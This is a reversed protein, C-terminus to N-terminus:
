NGNYKGERINHMLRNMAINGTEDSWWWLREKFERLRQNSLGAIVKNFYRNYLTEFFAVNGSAAAHNFMATGQERVFRDMDFGYAGGEFNSFINYKAFVCTLLVLKDKDTEPRSSLLLDLAERRDHIVALAALTNITGIDLGDLSAALAERNDDMMYRYPSTYINIYVKDNDLPLVALSDERVKLVDKFYRFDNSPGPWPSPEPTIHGRILMHSYIILRGNEFDWQNTPQDGGGHDFGEYGTLSQAFTYEASSRSQIVEDTFKDIAADAYYEFDAFQMGPRDNPLIHSMSGDLMFYSEKMLGQLSYWVGYIIKGQGTSINEMLRKFRLTNHLGALDRDIPAKELYQRDLLCALTLHEFIENRCLEDNDAQNFYNDDPEYLRYKTAYYDRNSDHFYSMQAAPDAWISDRLLSLTCALNYHAYVNAPYVYAAERFFRVAEAYDKKEYLGYGASNLSQSNAIDVNLGHKKVSEELLPLQDDRMREYRYIFSHYEPYEMMAAAKPVRPYKIISAARLADEARRADAERQAELTKTSVELRPYLSYAMNRENVAAITIYYETGSILGDLTTSTERTEEKNMRSVAKEANRKGAYDELSEYGHFYEVEMPFIWYRVPGELVAPEWALSIEHASIAVARPPAEPIKPVVAKCGSLFFVVIGPIIFKKYM